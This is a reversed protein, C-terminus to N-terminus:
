ASRLKEKVQEDTLTAGVWLAVKKAGASRALELFTREEIETLGGEIRETPHVLIRLSRLLGSGAVESTASKVAAQAHTFSGVLM